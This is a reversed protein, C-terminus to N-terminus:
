HAAARPEGGRLKEAISWASVLAWCGELLVFGWQAEHVADVALVSSGVLNPLLYRYSSPSWAGAQALLYGILVLLAGCLQVIQSATTV